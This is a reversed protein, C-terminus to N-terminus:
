SKDQLYIQKYTGAPINERNLKISYGDYCDIQIANYFAPARLLLWCALTEATPQFPLIKNLNKDDVLACLEKVEREIDYVSKARGDEAVIENQWHLHVTFDHSHQEPNGAWAQAHWIIIKHSYSGSFIPHKM